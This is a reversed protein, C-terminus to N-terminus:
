VRLALSFRLLLHGAAGRALVNQLLGDIPERLADALVGVAYGPAQALREAARLQALIIGHLAPIERREARCLGGIGGVVLLDGLTHRRTLGEVLHVGHAAHQVAAGVGLVRDAVGTLDSAPCGIRRTL